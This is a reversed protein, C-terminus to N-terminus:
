RVDGRRCIHRCIVDVDESTKSVDANKNLSAAERPRRQTYTHTDCADVCLLPINSCMIKVNDPHVNDQKDCM